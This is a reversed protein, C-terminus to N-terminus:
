DLNDGIDGNGQTSNEYRMFKKARERSKLRSKYTKKYDPIKIRANNNEIIHIEDARIKLILSIQEIPMGSAILRCVNEERETECGNKRAYHEHLTIMREVISKPLSMGAPDFGSELDQAVAKLFKNTNNV